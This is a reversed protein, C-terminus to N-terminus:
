ETIRIFGKASDHAIDRLAITRDGTRSVYDAVTCKGRYGKFRDFSATGERKPNSAALVTIIATDAITAARQRPVQVPVPDTELAPPAADRARVALRTADEQDQLVRNRITEAQPSSRLRALGPTPAPEAPLHATAAIQVLLGKIAKIGTPKDRFKANRKDAGALEALENYHVLLGDLSLDEPKLNQLINLKSLSIATMYTRREYEEPIILLAAPWGPFIRSAPNM